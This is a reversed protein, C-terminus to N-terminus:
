PPGLCGHRSRPVPRLYRAMRCPGPRRRRWPAKSNHPHFLSLVVIGLASTLRPRPPAGSPDPDGGGGDDGGGRSAVATSRHSRRPARIRVRRPSFRSIPPRYAPRKRILGMVRRAALRRFAKPREQEILASQENFNLEDFSEGYKEQALRVAESLAGLVDGPDLGPGTLRQPKVVPTFRPLVEDNEDFDLTLLYKTKKDGKRTFCYM